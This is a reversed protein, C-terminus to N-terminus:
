DHFNEETIAVVAEVIGRVVVDRGVLSSAQAAFGQGACTQWCYSEREAPGPPAPVVVLISLNVLMKGIWDM